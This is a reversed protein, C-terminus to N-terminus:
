ARGLRPRGLRPRQSLDGPSLAGHRLITWSGDEEISAIDVVTSPLGTLEGGDIALDAGAVIATPSTRSARRRRSAASTPRPRSSRACRGPWRGPSCASASGSATRAAPSASLPPRPQRRGADGAGAAPRQGRRRHAPRPRRGAGADGAALLVHGGLVQRRRAGQAPPDARDRRRRAPRLRPRLPRRRPLRRRRRRRHLTGAGHARGPRRRERAQRDRDRRSASMAGGGSGARDRGPRAPGRDRAFGAARMLGRVAEAQGEGVEVASHPLGKARWATWLVAASPLAPRPLRRPRRPRRAAGRAAGM